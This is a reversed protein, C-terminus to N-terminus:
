YLALVEAISEAQWAHKQIDITKLFHQLNEKTAPGLILREIEIIYDEFITLNESPWDNIAASLINLSQIMQADKKEEIFRDIGSHKLEHFTGFHRRICNM